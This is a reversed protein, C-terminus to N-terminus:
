DVETVRVADAIVVSGAPAWRSVAVRNWGATFEYSGVTVWSAHNNQQNMYETGLVTGDANYAIYPAETTRNAGATWTSEVLMRSDSDLWFWFDVPDSSAGTDRYMYDSGYFGSTYSSSAWWGSATVEAASDNNSNDSDIVIQVPDSGTDVPDTGTDVPDSDGPTPATSGACNSSPRVRVADAIVVGSTGTTRSLAVAGWGANLNFDGITNWQGGGTTQNMNARGVESGDADFVIFPASTTRDGSAAWWADVAYCGATDLNYRFYAADSSSGSSRWWYGTNYYGGVNQSSKWSSSVDVRGKSPLNYANNSDIVITSSGPAGTGPTPVGTDGSDGPDTPDVPPPTTGGGDGCKSRIDALYSAWPWNPGPDVRNYPQLQGHGVIHYSDRPIGQDRTIDCVLQASKDILGPHWSSQAARGAHEIGVTFNNSSVSNRSCNTGDNLNCDYRASIHWAKRSERVLQSVESGDDNVVYHASVGSGSKSLWSWCGTYSGECTHIIVLESGYSGRSSSNPSPRWVAYSRDGGSSYTNPVPAPFNITGQWPPVSLDELHIGQALQGYIEDHVYAAQAAEDDLGSYRAVTPAWAGLDARDVALDDAWFSLLAAAALINATRDTRADHATVGALLAAHEVMSERLAMLGWVPEQGEFEQEGQAAQMGTEGYAITQLLEVPVDFEQAADDFAASMPRSDVEGEYATPGCAAAGLLSLGVLTLRLASFRPQSVM